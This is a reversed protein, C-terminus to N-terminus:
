RLLTIPERVVQTGVRARAYYLGPALLTGRDDRGDWSVTSGGAAGGGVHTLRRVLRGSADYIEIASAGARSAQDAFALRVESSAPNPMARLLRVGTGEMGQGAAVPDMAVDAPAAQASFVYSATGSSSIGAVVLIVEDNPDDLGFVPLTGAQTVPDLTMRLVDTTGSARLALCWVAFRNDNSGDFSWEIATNSGFANFRYYDAAWRNVTRTTAPVPYTSYIGSVSFPPLDDGVYGFRGDGLTPDDLYNAVAWDAFVDAFNEPYGLADLVAEYGAISNAPEHVVDFVAPEGGYREYFYLSWLYTKIYDAWNGNWAVLSNDPSTNFASIVDPRGYFWMSLEAMGEDVWSDENDDYKWHILHEFEHAIVSLMYDGHPSQGHGCNLYLVECENSHYGPFTGEPYEDFDFFFGDSSIGFSFWMLYIRPDNDLEDPPEGFVRSSIPYIGEDPYPGISSNEWRELIADVDAQTVNVNWQTDDVVVYGHDSRGRVTCVRQAFHPPMPDHLWLWWVWSDGVQPNPPPSTPLGGLTALPVDPGMRDPAPLTVDHAGDARATALLGGLPLIMLALLIAGAATARRWDGSRRAHASDSSHAVSNRM